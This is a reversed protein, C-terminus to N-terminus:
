QTSSQFCGMYMTTLTLAVGFLCGCGFTGSTGEEKGAAFGEARAAAVEEEHDDDPRPEYYDM